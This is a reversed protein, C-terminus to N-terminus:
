ENHLLQNIKETIKNKNPGVVASHTPSKKASSYYRGRRCDGLGTASVQPYAPTECPRRDHCQALYNSTDM